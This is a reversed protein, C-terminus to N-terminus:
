SGDCQVESLGNRERNGAKVSQEGRFKVAQTYVVLDSLEQAVDVKKKKGGKPTHEPADRDSSTQWDTTGAAPDNKPRLKVDTGSM